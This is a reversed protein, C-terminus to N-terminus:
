YKCLVINRLQPWDADKLYLCGEAGINNYGIIEDYTSLNLTIINKWSAKSIYFVGKAQTRSSRNRDM